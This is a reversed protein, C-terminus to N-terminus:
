CSECELVRAKIAAWTTSSDPHNKFHEMRRELESVITDSVPLDSPHAELQNWLESALQLKELASLREVEPFRELIM